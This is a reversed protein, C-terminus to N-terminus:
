RDLTDREDPAPGASRAAEASQDRESPGTRDGSVWRELRLRIRELPAPEDREDPRAPRDAPGAGVASESGPAPPVGAVPVGPTPPLATAGATTGAPERAPVDAMPAPEGASLDATPVPGGASLGATAAPEGAPVDATPIPEGASVDAAPVDPTRTPEGAPVDASRPGPSPAAYELGYHAFLRAEEEPTLQGDLDIRPAEKVHAKEYPVQVGDRLETAQLLPVFTHKAGFLGTSVLAWTPEGTERDLYFESITGVTAGDRDVIVMRRWRDLTTPDLTAM